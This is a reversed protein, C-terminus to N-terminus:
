FGLYMVIPGSETLKLKCKELVTKHFCVYIRLNSKIGVLVTENLHCIHPSDM